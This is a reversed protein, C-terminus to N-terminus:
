STFDLSLYFTLPMWSEPFLHLPLPLLSLSLSLHPDQLTLSLYIFLDIFLCDSLCVSSSVNHKGKMEAVKEPLAILVQYTLMKSQLKNHANSVCILIRRDEDDVADRVGVAM